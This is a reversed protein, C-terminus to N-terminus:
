NSSVFILGAATVLFLFAGGYAGFCFTLIPRLVISALFISIWYFIWKKANNRSYITALFPIVYAVLLTPLFILFLIFSSPESDVPTNTSDPTAEM